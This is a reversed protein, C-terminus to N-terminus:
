SLRGRAEAFADRPVRVVIRDGDTTFEGTLVSDLLARLADREAELRAVAAVIDDVQTSM